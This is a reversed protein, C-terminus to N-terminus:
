PNFVQSLRMVSAGKRRAEELLFTLDTPSRAARARSAMHRLYTRSKQDAPLAMVVFEQRLGSTVRRPPRADLEIDTRGSLLKESHVPRIRFDTGTASTRTAIVWLVSQHDTKSTVRYRFDCLASAPLSPTTGNERLSRYTTLPAVAGVHVAACPKGVPPRSEIAVADLLNTPAPRWSVPILQTAKTRAIDLNLPKELSVWGSVLIALSTAVSTGYAVARLAPKKDALAGPTRALWRRSKRRNKLGLASLTEAVSSGPVLHIGGLDSGFQTTLAARAEDANDVPVAMLVKIDQSLYNQLVETSQRIKLDIDGVAEITLDRTVEGTAWLVQRTNESPPSLSKEDQLAHAVFIGLQWSL